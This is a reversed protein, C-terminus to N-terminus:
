PRNHCCRAPQHTTGKVEQVGGQTSVKACFLMEAKAPDLKLDRYLVNAALGLVTKSVLTCAVLTSSSCWLAIRDFVNQPVSELLGRRGQTAIMWTLLGVVALVVFAGPGASVAPVWIWRGTKSLRGAQNRRDLGRRKMREWAENKWRGDPFARELLVGVDERWAELEVDKEELERAQEQVQGKLTLIEDGREKLAQELKDLRMLILEETPMVPSLVNHDASLERKAPVSTGRRGQGGSQAGAEGRAGADKSTTGGGVDEGCPYYIIM